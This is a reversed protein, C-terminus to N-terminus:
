GVHASVSSPHFILHDMGGQPTVGHLHLFEAQVIDLAMDAGCLLDGDGM